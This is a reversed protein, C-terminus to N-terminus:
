QQPFLIQEDLGNFKKSFKVPDKTVSLILVLFRYCTINDVDMGATPLKQSRSIQLGTTVKAVQARMYTEKLRDSKEGCVFSSRTTLVLTENLAM